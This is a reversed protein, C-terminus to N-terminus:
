DKKVIILKTFSKNNGEIKEKTLTQGIPIIRSSSIGQEVIYEKLKEARCQSNHMSLEIPIIEKCIIQLWVRPNNELFGVISDLQTKSKPHFNCKGLDWLINTAYFVSGSDVEIDTLQFIKEKQGCASFALAFFLVMILGKMKKEKFNTVVSEAKALASKSVAM